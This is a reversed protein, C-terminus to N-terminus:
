PQSIHIVVPMGSRSAMASPRRFKVELRYLLAGGAKGEAEVGLGYVEGDIEQGGIGVKVAQGPKLSDMADSPVQAVALLERDDVLTLMPLVQFRNSVVQGPSAYVRTVLGDFPADLRSQELDIRANALEAKANLWQADAKAAGLQAMQKDHDSLVTRDYLELARELERQAEDRSQRSAELLAQARDLNVQLRRQDLSLLPDGKSVHQGVKVDVRSVVGSLPISLDVSRSWAVRAQYEQASALTTVGLLLCFMLNRIM